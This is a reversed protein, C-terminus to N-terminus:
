PRAIELKEIILNEGAQSIRYGLHAIVRRQVPSIDIVDSKGDRAPVIRVLRLQLLENGQGTELLHKLGIANAELQRSKNVMDRVTRTKEAASAWAYRSHDMIDQRLADRLKVKEMLVAFQDPPTTEALASLAKYDLNSTPSAVAAEFAVLAQSHQGSIAMVRLAANRLRYDASPDLWRSAAAVVAAPAPRYEFRAFAAMLMAKSADPRDALNTVFADAETSAGIGDLADSADIFAYSDSRSQLAVDILIPAADRGALEGLLGYLQSKRLELRTMEEEPLSPTANQQAAISRLAALLQPVISPGRALLADHTLGSHELQDILVGIEQSVERPYTGPVTPVAPPALGADDAEAATEGAVQYAKTKESSDRARDAPHLVIWGVISVAAVGLVILGVARKKM